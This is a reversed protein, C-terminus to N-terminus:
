ACKCVAQSITACVDWEGAGGLSLLLSGFMLVPLQLDSGQLKVADSNEPGPEKTCRGTEVSKTYLGQGSPCYRKYRYSVCETKNRQEFTTYKNTITERNRLIRQAGLSAAVDLKDRLIVDKIIKTKIYPVTKNQVCKQSWQLARLWRWEVQQEDADAQPRPDAAELMSPVDELTEPGAPHEIISGTKDDKEPDLYEEYRAHLTKSKAGKKDPGGAVYFCRQEQALEAKNCCCERAPRKRVRCVARDSFLNQMDQATSDSALAEATSCIM